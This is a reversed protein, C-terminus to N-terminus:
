YPRALAAADGFARAAVRQRQRHRLADFAHARSSYTRGDGTFQRAVEFLERNRIETDARLDFLIREFQVQDLGVDQLRKLYRSVVARRVSDDDTRVRVNKSRIEEALDEVTEADASDLVRLVRQISTRPSKAGGGEYAQALTELMDRLERVNGSM